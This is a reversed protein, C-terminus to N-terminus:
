AGPAQRAREAKYLAHVLLVMIVDQLFFQSVSLLGAGLTPGIMPGWVLTMALTGRALLVIAGFRVLGDPDWRRAPFRGFWRLVACALVTEAFSVYSPILVNAGYPVTYLEPRAHRAAWAMLPGLLTGLGRLLVHLWLAGIALALAIRGTLGRLHSVGAVAIGALVLFLTAPFVLGALPAAAGTTVIMGMLTTRFLGTLTAFLAAVALWRLLFPRHGLAPVMVAALAVLGFAQAWPVATRWRGIESADPYPVGLGQLMGVHISLSLVVIGAM